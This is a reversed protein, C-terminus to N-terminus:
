FLGRPIEAGTGFQWRCPRRARTWRNARRPCIPIEHVTIRSADRWARPSRCGPVDGRSFHSPLRAHGLRRVPTDGFTVTIPLQARPELDFAISGRPRRRGAPSWRLREDDDVHLRRWRRGDYHDFGNRRHLQLEVKDHNRGDYTRHGHRRWRRGHGLDHGDHEDNCCDVDLRWRRGHLQQDHHRPRDNPRQRRRRDHLEHEHRQFREDHRGDVIDLHRDREDDNRGHRRGRGPRSRRHLRHM